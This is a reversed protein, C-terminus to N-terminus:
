DGSIPNLQQDEPVQYQEVIDLYRRNAHRDPLVWAGNSSAFTKIRYKGIEGHDLPKPDAAPQAEAQVAQQAITQSNSTVLGFAAGSVFIAAATILNTAKM